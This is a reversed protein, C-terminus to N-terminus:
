GAACGCTASKVQGSTVDKELLAYVKYSDSKMSPQMLCQVHCFMPNQTNIELKEM